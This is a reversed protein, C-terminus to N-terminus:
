WDYSQYQISTDWSYHCEGQCDLGEKNGDRAYDIYKSNLVGDDDDDEPIYDNYM